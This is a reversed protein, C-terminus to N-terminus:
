FSMQNLPFLQDGEIERTPSGGTEKLGPTTRYKKQFKQDYLSMPDFFLNSFPVSDRATTALISVGEGIKGLLGPEIRYKVQLLNLLRENEKENETKNVLLCWRLILYRCVM